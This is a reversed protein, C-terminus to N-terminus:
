GRYKEKTHKDKSTREVTAQQKRLDAEVRQSQFATTRRLHIEEVLFLRKVIREEFVPVITTDGETRVEPLDDVFRDIRVREVEVDDRPLDLLLDEHVKCTRTRVEVSGDIILEKDVSLKEEIVQLNRKNGHM